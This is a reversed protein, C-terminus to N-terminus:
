HDPSELLVSPPDFYPGLAGGASYLDGIRSSYHGAVVLREDADSYRNDIRAVGSRYRQTELGDATGPRSAEVHFGQNGGNRL